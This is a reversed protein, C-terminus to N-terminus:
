QYVSVIKCCIDAGKFADNDQRAQKEEIMLKNINELYPTWMEEAGIEFM